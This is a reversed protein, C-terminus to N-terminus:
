KHRSRGAQIVFFARWVGRDCNHFTLNLLRRSQQIPTGQAPGITKKDQWGTLNYLLGTLLRGMQRHWFARRKQM